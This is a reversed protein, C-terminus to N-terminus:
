PSHPYFFSVIQEYPFNRKYDSFAKNLYRLPKNKQKQPLAACAPVTYISNIGDAIHEIELKVPIFLSDNEEQVSLLTVSIRATPHESEEVMKYFGFKECRVFEKKLLKWIDSFNKLLIKQRSPDSPWFNINELYVDNQLPALYLTENQVPIAATSEPLNEISATCSCVCLISISLLFFLFTKM